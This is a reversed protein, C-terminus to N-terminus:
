LGHVLLWLHWSLPLCLPFIGQLVTRVGEIEVRGVARGRSFGRVYFISGRWMKKKYLDWVYDMCTRVVSKLVHSTDINQNPLATPLLQARKNTAPVGGGSLTTHCFSCPLLICAICGDADVLGYHYGMGRNSIFLYVPSVNPRWLDSGYMTVKMYAYMEPVFYPPLTPLHNRLTPRSYTRFFHLRLTM